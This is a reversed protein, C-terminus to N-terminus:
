DLRKSMGGLQGSAKGTLKDEYEEPDYSARKGGRSSPMDGGSQKKYQWLAVFCIAAVFVAYRIYTFDFDSEEDQESLANYTV